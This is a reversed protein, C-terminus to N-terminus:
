TRLEEVRRRCPACWMKPNIQVQRCTGTSRGGNECSVTLKLVERRAPSANEWLTKKMNDIIPFRFQFFFKKLKSDLGTGVFQMREWLEDFVVIGLCLKEKFGTIEMCFRLASYQHSVELVDALEDLVRWLVNAGPVLIMQSHDWIITPLLRSDSLHSRILDQTKEENISKAWGPSHRMYIPQVTYGADLYNLVVCTSDYGGTWLVYQTPHPTVLKSLGSLPGSLSVPIETGVPNEAMEGEAKQWLDFTASERLSGAKDFTVREGKGPQVDLMSPPQLSSARDYAQLEGKGPQIDLKTNKTLASGKSMMPKKM